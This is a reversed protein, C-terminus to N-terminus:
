VVAIEEATSADRWSSHRATQWRREAEKLRDSARGSVLHIDVRQQALGCVVTAMLRAFRM